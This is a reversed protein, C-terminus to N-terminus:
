EEFSCRYCSNNASILTTLKLQMIQRIIRLRVCARARARARFVPCSHMPPLAFSRKSVLETVSHNLVCLRACLCAYRPRESARVCVRVGEDACCELSPMVFRNFIVYENCLDTHFSSFGNTTESLVLPRLPRNLPRAPSYCLAM